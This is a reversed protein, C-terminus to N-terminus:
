GEKEGVDLVWTRWIMKVDNSGRNQQSEFPVKEEPVNKFV